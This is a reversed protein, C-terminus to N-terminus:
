LNLKSKRWRYITESTTKDGKKTFHEVAKQATGFTDICWNALDKKFDAEMDKISKQTDFYSKIAKSQLKNFEAKTYDFANKQPLLAKLEETFNDYNRYYIAIKQLDRFNGYLPLARLWTMLNSDNPADSEKGFHLQAWIKKWDAERDEATERLPPIEIINQAIRDFFDEHLYSERLEDVTRNTAFIITCRILKEENDGLRRISFFGRDDTQLAKMLKEQVRKSLNHIEDLFLVGGNAAQFLGEKDNIAGTFAGKKYGFLESEAKSDDDFAACNASVFKKNTSNDNALKSKGTGREGLILTSFGNNIFVKMKLNAIKRKDSKTGEFINLPVIKKFIDVSVEKISFSKFRPHQTSTKDDYTQLFTTNNPLYGAQSLAHWVVQTENSGLSINIYYNADPFTKKLMALFRQMEEAINKVDRLDEVKTNYVTFNNQNYGGKANSNELLWEVQDSIVYHQIDRWLLSVFVDYKEPYHTKVFEIDKQLDPLYDNDSINDRELIAKWIDKIGTALVADDNLMEQRYKVRNALAFFVEQPAALYYV